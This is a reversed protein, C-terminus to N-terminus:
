LHCKGALKMTLLDDSHQKNQQHGAMLRKLEFITRDQVHVVNKLGTIERSQDLLQREQKIIKEEQVM